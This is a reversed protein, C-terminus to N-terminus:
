KLNDLPNKTNKLQELSTHTYIQTTNLSSHGLLTQIKRINEGEELLHTAYSHRLTHPTLHKTILAKKRAKRLIRQITDTSIKSGNKKSFVYETQIKKRKLYKNLEKIWVHSLTILRDKSGKGARVIAIEKKLDLDNLKINVCESVRTGTSYLFEIICRNRGAPVAKILAKVEEKTLVTPIKKEKKPNKIDDLINKKLYKKFFFKLTSLIQSITANSNNKERRQISLYEVIDERSINDIPKKSYNFFHILNLEYSEITKSSYGAVILEQKFRNLYNEFDKEM